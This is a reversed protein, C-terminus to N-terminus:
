GGAQVYILCRHTFWLYLAAMVICPLVCPVLKRFCRISRRSLIVSGYTPLLFFPIMFISSMNLGFAACIVLISKSFIASAKDDKVYELFYYLLMPLILLVLIGKGEYPRFYLMSSVTANNYSFLNLFGVIGVLLVAQANTKVLVQALKYYLLHYLVIVVTLMVTCAELLSPLGTLQCAVASHNQYTEWLYESNLAFLQQGTYPDYQSITNTYVSAATDGIYYAQDWKAIVNNNLNALIIQVAMILFLLLYNWKQDWILSFTQKLQGFAQKRCHLFFTGLMGGIVVCWTASLYSLDFLMLKYPICLVFFLLHYFFFGLLETEIAKVEKWSCLSCVVTGFIYFLLLYVIVLLLALIKM